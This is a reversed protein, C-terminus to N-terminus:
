RKPRLSFIAYIRKKSENTAIESSCESSKEPSRCVYSRSMIIPFKKLTQGGIEFKIWFCEVRSRTSNHEAITKGKQIFAPPPPPDYYIAASGGAALLASWHSNYVL